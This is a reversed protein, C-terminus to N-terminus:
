ALQAKSVPFGLETLDLVLIRLSLPIGNKNATLILDQIAKIYDTKLTRSSRH